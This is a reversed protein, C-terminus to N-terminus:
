FILGILFGILVFGIVLVWEEKEWEETLIWKLKSFFVIVENIKDVFFRKIIAFREKIIDIM